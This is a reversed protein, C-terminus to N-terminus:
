QPSLLWSISYSTAKKPLEGSRIGRHLNEQDLLIRGAQCLSVSPRGQWRSAGLGGADGVLGGAAAAGGPRAPGAEGGPLGEPEPQSM